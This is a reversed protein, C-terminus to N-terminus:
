LMFNRNQLVRLGEYKQKQYMYFYVYVLLIITCIYYYEVGPVYICCRLRTGKDLLAHTNKM